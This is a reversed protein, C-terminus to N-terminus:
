SRGAQLTQAGMPSKGSGGTPSKGSSTGSRAAPSTRQAGTPSASPSIGLAMKADASGFSSDDWSNEPDKSGSANGRENRSGGLGAPGGGKPSTAVNGGAHPSTSM